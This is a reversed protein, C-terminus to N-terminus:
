LDVYLKCASLDLIAVITVRRVDEGAPVCLEGRVEVVNRGQVARVVLEVHLRVLGVRRRGREEGVGGHFGLDACRGRVRLVVDVDVVVELGRAGPDAEGLGQELAEDLLVDLDGHPGPVRYTSARGEAGGM